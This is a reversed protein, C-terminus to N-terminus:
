GRSLAGIAEGVRVRAGAAVTWTASVPGVVIVTSGLHFVGLDGGRAAPWPTALAEERAGAGANTLLDTFGVEIRGVGFAGVLVVDLAAGETELRCVVRENRAFLGTVRRVAAPFVPWLTGPVYRWRTVRGERPVHVRHYDKPSLYLVIVSREGDVPEGLLAELTHVQGPLMEFRGEASVGAWAVVGDVPSVVAEPSPDVPRAGPRLRRTFLAELTPFDAEAAESLDVGYVRVFAQAGLRSLGTRALGGMVRAAARRPVLSLASVILADRM